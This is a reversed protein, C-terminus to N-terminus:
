QRWEVGCIKSNEGAVFHVIVQASAFLACPWSLRRLPERFPKGRELNLFILAIFM